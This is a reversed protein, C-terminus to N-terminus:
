FDLLDNENKLDPDLEDAFLALRYQLLHYTSFLSRDSSYLSRGHRLHVPTLDENSDSADPQAIIYIDDINHRALVVKIGAETDLLADCYSSNYENKVSFYRVPLRNTSSKMSTLLINRPM